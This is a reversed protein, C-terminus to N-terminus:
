EAAAVPAAAAAPAEPAARQGVGVGGAPPPGGPVGRGTAVELCTPLANIDNFLRRRAEADLRAARPRRRTLRTHSHLVIPLHFSIYPDYWKLAALRASTRRRLGHAGGGGAGDEDAAEAEAADAEATV